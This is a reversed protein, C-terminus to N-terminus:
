AFIAALNESPSGEKSWRLEHYIAVALIANILGSVTQTAPEVIAQVIPNAVAGALLQILWNVIFGGLGVAVMLGFIAGRANGTLSNSRRIAEVVGLRETVMAPVVVFWALSLIVGPIVLLVSGLLCGLGTVVSLAILALWDRPGGFPAESTRQGRLDSAVNRAALAEIVAGGLMIVLINLLLMVWAAPDSYGAAVDTFLPTLFTVAADPLGVFLVSFLLLKPFDRQFITMAYKLARGTNFGTHTEADTM